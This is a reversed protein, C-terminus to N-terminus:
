NVMPNKNMPGHWTVSSRKLRCVPGNEAPAHVLDVYYEFVESESGTAKLRLWIYRFIPTDPIGDVAITNGSIVIRSPFNPSYGLEHEFLSAASAFAPLCTLSVAIILLLLTTTKIIKRMRNVKRLEYNDAFYKGYAKNTKM